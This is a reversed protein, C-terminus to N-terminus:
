LPRRRCQCLSQTKRFALIAKDIPEQPLDAWIVELVAKLEAKIRPKPKHIRYRELMAGWVHYDLPILDRSNPPWEDKTIFDPINRQMEPSNVQM